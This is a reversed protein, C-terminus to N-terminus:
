LRDRKPIKGDRMAVYRGYTVIPLGEARRAANFQDLDRLVESMGLGHAPGPNLAANRQRQEERKAARRDRYIDEPHKRCEPCYKPRGGPGHHSFLNGCVDCKLDM